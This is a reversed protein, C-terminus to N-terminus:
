LLYHLRFGFIQKSHPLHNVELSITLYIFLNIPICKNPIANTFVSSGPIDGISNSM